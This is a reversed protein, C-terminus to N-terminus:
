KGVVEPNAQEFAIIDDLGPDMTEFCGAIEVFKGSEDLWVNRIQHNANNHGDPGSFYWPACLMDSQFNKFGSLAPSVTERTIENPELSLLVEVIARAALYGSQSFSDRPIDAGYESLLQRWNANDPTTADTLSFGAGTNFKGFWYDGIQEPFTTDYCSPLCTFRVSEGLAQQEAAALISVADGGANAIVFGDPKKSVIDAVIAPATTLPAGVSTLYTVEVGAREAFGRLGDEEWDGIGPIALTTGAFSAIDYEEVLLQAASVAAVRPGSDMSSMNPSYFCDRSTGMAMLDYLNHDALVPQNGACAVLSASGVLAVVSDDEAFRTVAASAKQPDIGDDQVDFAIPRGNIGGNENVCDFYAQATDSAASLDVGGSISVIAGLQIPEGTAAEGTNLGCELAVAEAGAIDDDAGGTSPAACGQVVFAVAVAVLGALLSSKLLTNKM